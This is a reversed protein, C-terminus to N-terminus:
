IVQTVDASGAEEHSSVSKGQKHLSSAYVAVVPAQMRDVQVLLPAMHLVRELGQSIHKDQGWFLSELM